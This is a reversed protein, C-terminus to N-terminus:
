KLNAQNKKKEKSELFDNYYYVKKLESTFVVPDLVEITDSYHYFEVEFEKYEM